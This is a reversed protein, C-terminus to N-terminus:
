KLTALWGPDLAGTIEIRTISVSLGSGGIGFGAASEAGEPFACELVKRDGVLATLQGNRSRVEFTGAHPMEEATSKLSTGGWDFHMGNARIKETRWDARFSLMKGTVPLGLLVLLRTSRRDPGQMFRYTVRVSVDRPSFPRLAVHPHGSLRLWLWTDRIHSRTADNVEFDRMQARDSFDYVLSVRKARADIMRFAGKFRGVLRRELARARVELRRRLVSRERAKEKAFRTACHAKEFADLESLVSHAEDETYEERTRTQLTRWAAAAAAEPEAEPTPAADDRLPGELAPTRGAEPTSAGKPPSARESNSRSACAVILVSLLAAVVVVIVRVTM